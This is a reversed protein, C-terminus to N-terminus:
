VRDVVDGVGSVDVTDHLVADEIRSGLCEPLSEGEIASVLVHAAPFLPVYIPFSCRRAQPLLDPLSMYSATKCFLKRHGRM